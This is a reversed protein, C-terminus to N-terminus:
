RGTNCGNGTVIVPDTSTGSQSITLNEYNGSLSIDNNARFGSITFLLALSLLVKKM